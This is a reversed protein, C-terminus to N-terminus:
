QSVCKGSFWGAEQVQPPQLQQPQVQETHTPVASETVPIEPPAEIAKAKAAKAAKKDKAKQKWKEKQARKKDKKAQKKAKKKAQREAEKQEASKKTRRTRGPLPAAPPSDQLPNVNVTRNV